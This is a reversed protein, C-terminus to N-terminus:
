PQTAPHLSLSLFFSLSLTGLSGQGQVTVFLAPLQLAPPCLTRPVPRVTNSGGLAFTSDVHM